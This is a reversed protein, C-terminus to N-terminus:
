TVRWRDVVQVAAPAGLTAGLAYETSRDRAIVEVTDRGELWNALTQATRDPLLDTVRRAELDVLITGYTQAKKLAWDDVGLVRPTVREPLPIARVLRLVTDASAPM